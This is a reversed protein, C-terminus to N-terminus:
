RKNKKRRQKIKSSSQHDSVYDPDNPQQNQKSKIQVMNAGRKSPSSANTDIVIIKDLNSSNSSPNNFDLKHNLSVSNTVIKRYDKSKKSLISTKESKYLPKNTIGESSVGTNSSLLPNNYLLQNNHLRTTNSLSQKLRSFDRNPTKKSASMNIILGNREQRKETFKLAPSDYLYEDTDDRSTLKSGMTKRTVKTAIPSKFKPSESMEDESNSKNKDDSMNPFKLKSPNLHYSPDNYKYHERKESSMKLNEPSEENENIFSDINEQFSNIQQMNRRNKIETKMDKKLITFKHSNQKQDTMDKNDNIQTKIQNGIIMRPSDKIQKLPKFDNLKKKKMKLHQKFSGKEVNPTLSLKYDSKEGKPIKLNKHPKVMLFGNHSINKKSSMRYNKYVHNNNFNIGDIKEDIDNFLFDEQEYQAIPEISQRLQPIMRQKPEFIQIDNSQHHYKNVRSRITQSRQAHRYAKPIMTSSSVSVKNAPEFEKPKVSEFHVRNNVAHPPKLNFNNDKHQPTTNRKNAYYRHYSQFSKSKDRGNVQSVDPQRVAFVNTAKTLLSLPSKNINGENPIFFNADEAQATGYRKRDESESENPMIDNPIESSSYSEEFAKELNESTNDSDKPLM